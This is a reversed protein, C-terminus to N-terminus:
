SFYEVFVWFKRVDVIIQDKYFESICVQEKCAFHLLDTVYSM